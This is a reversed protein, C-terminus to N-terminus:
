HSKSTFFLVHTFCRLSASSFLIMWPFLKVPGTLKENGKVNLMRLNKFGSITDPVQENLVNNQLNLIHLNEWSNPALAAFISTLQNGELELVKLGSWQKYLTPPFSGKLGQNSMDLFEINPLYALSRPMPVDLKPIEVFTLSTIVNTDGCGVGVWECEHLQSNLALNLQIWVVAIAYRQLLNWDVNMQSSTFADELIIWQLAKWEASSPNNVQLAFEPDVPAFETLAADRLQKWKTQQGQLDVTKLNGNVQDVDLVTLLFFLFAGVLFAVSACFVLKCKTQISHLNWKHQKSVVM